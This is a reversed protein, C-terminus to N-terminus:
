DTAVNLLTVEDVLYRRLSKYDPKGVQAEIMVFKFDLCM